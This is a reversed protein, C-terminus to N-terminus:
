HACACSPSAQARRQHELVQHDVGEADDDAKAAPLWAGDLLKVRREHEDDHARVGRGPQADGEHELVAVAQDLAEGGRDRDDQRHGDRADEEAELQRAGKGDAGGDDAAGEVEVEATRRGGVRGCAACYHAIHPEGGEAAGNCGGGGGDCTASKLLTSMSFASCRSLSFSISSSADLESWSPPAPSPSFTAVRGTPLHCSAPRRAAAVRIRLRGTAMGVCVPGAVRGAAPAEEAGRALASRCSVRRRPTALSDSSVSFPLPSLHCWVLHILM